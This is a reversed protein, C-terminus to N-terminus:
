HYTPEQAEEAYNVMLEVLVRPWTGKIHLANISQERRVTNKHEIVSNKRSIHNNINQQVESQYKIAAYHERGAFGFAAGCLIHPNAGAELLQQVIKVRGYSSAVILPTEDGEDALNCDVGQNILLAVFDTRDYIAAWHLLTKGQESKKNLLSPDRQLLHAFRPIDNRYMLTKLAVIQETPRSAAHVALDMFILIALLVNCIM